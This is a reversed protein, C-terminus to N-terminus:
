WSSISSACYNYVRCKGKIYTKGHNLAKTFGRNVIFTGVAVCQWVYMGIHAHLDFSCGALEPRM